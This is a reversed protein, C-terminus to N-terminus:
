GLLLQDDYLTALTGVLDNGYGTITDIIRWGQLLSIDTPRQPPKATFICLILIDSTVANARVANTRLKDPIKREFTM